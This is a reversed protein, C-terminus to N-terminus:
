TISQIARPLECFHSIVIDPDFEHVPRDTYGFNVAVVPINAAKAAAIDNVSDGVMVAHEPTGGALKITETIHRPDPKKFAFTDGGTVVPFLNTTNLEHLIKRALHEYKNTCIAPTWGDKALEDLVEFVGDFFVTHVAIENEYNELFVKLLEQQREAKLERNQRTFALEIMKLAGQGVVHGVESMPVPSLGDLAITKNLAPVLDLVSDVLTGDLDFVAIKIASNQSSQPSNGLM